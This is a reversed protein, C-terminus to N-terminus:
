SVTLATDDVVFSTQLSVDEDLLFRVTVSSGKYATLDYSKKVYGNTADLNSYTALTTTSGGVVVQPRMTDYARTTTRESTDVRVYFTLVASTATSPITVTQQETETTTRGNGGLWMKWSGTRAPRGTNNTIPGSSGTWVTAGSEFGPNQLLNGGAPPEPDGGGGGGGGDSGCSESGAAVNIASFAAAVATCEQSGEGYLEKASAIAGDRAAAYTSTSTLKTALTRYWIQEVAARGTGTVSSGNCTPSDYAVGNVTKAGSGESALYFWHNLPGSSYHPDLNKTGTTWCDQSRGDKSPKDMYRLPTGNGNIDIKEGILYDGRDTSNEAYFEVATGFIDSTAENLGGAEGSYILDATNETVGHSMEHAAVDLSTLPHTNGRGDGYTMQTGDWFANNYANGFHVRSRAGTGNDWIGARGLVTDYYDYTMEAGYQADVGATQRNSPSGDGWVDDADTFLTGTLARNSSGNMDTTHNNRSDRLEWSSGNRTTHLTVTGSYMSNGTGHVIEDWSTIVKGSDADVITHLRSPTQDEKVGTTLVDYALRPTGSGAWVVLEGDSKENKAASRKEGAALAASRELSPKTTRAGVARHGANFAVDSVKGAKSKEVVLDGGVVRLGNWTRDYRVHTTGDADTVVARQVLKENKDLGLAAHDGTPSAPTPAAPVAAATAATLGGLLTAVAAGLALGPSNRRM